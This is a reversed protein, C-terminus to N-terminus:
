DNDNTRLEFQVLAPQRLLHRELQELREDIRLEFEITEGTRDLRGLAHHLFLPRLNPVDELFDDALMGYQQVPRRREMTEPNLGELRHQDLALRDLQVRQNAGREIGIEVAVLHGDM